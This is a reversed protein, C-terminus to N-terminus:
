MAPSLKLKKAERRLVELCEAHEEVTGHSANIRAVNMGAELLQSIVAPAISSPGITCVIKTKRM